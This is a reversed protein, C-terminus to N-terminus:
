SILNDSLLFTEEYRVFYETEDNANLNGSNFGLTLQGSTDTSSDKQTWMYADVSATFTTFCSVKKTSLIANGGITTPYLKDWIAKPLVIRYFTNISQTASSSKVVKFAIAITLKNGNKVIGGYVSTITHDSVVQPRIDYVDSMKEVIEGGTVLGDADLSGVSIDLGELATIDVPHEVLYADVADSVKEDLAGSALEAEFVEKIIATLQQETYMRRM